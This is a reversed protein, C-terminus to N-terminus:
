EEGQNTDATTPAALAARLEARVQEIEETLIENREELRGVEAELDNVATIADHLASSVADSANDCQRALSRYRTM